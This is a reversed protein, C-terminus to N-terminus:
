LSYIKIEKEEMYVKASQFPSQVIRKYKGMSIEVNPHLTGKIIVHSSHSQENSAFNNKEMYLESLKAATQNITNDIKSVTGQDLRNSNGAQRVLADKLQQLKELNLQLEKIKEDGAFSQNPQKENQKMYILTKSYTENGIENATIMNEATCTGGAINGKGSICVINKGAECNSHLISQAVEINEGAMINGQNIYLSTFNGRCRISGKGQGLVGGGVVINGAAVIEAAEVLGEIRVDGQANIKFGSPVDGTVHVNGVFDIHGTKLSLDGDVRYVPYVNVCNSRYSVEGSAAAYIGLNEENFVTNEGNKVRLDKGRKAPIPEGFVTIGPTGETAERKRAILQGFSVTPIIFLRKFDVKENESNNKIIDADAAPILKAPEGHVPLRGKAIEIQSHNTDNNVAVKRIVDSQLGYKIGKSHIWTTLRDFTVEEPNIEVDSKKVLIAITEKELLKINFWQDM